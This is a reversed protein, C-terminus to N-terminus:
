STFISLDIFGLLFLQHFRCLGNNPFVFSESSQELLSFHINLLYFYGKAHQTYWLNNKPM